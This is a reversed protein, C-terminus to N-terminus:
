DPATRTVESERKLPFTSDSEDSALRLIRAGLSATGKDWPVYDFTLVM